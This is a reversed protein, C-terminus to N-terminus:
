FFFDQTSFCKWIELYNRYIFKFFFCAMFIFRMKSIIPFNNQLFILERRSSFLKDSPNPVGGLYISFNPLAFRLRKGMTICLAFCKAEKELFYLFGFSLNIYLIIYLNTHLYIIIFFYYM